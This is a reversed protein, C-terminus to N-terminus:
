RLLFFSPITICLRDDWHCCSAYFLLIVTCAAHPFLLVRDGFYSSTHSSTQSL